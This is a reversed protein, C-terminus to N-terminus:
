RTTSFGGRDVHYGAPRLDLGALKELHANSDRYVELIAASLADDLRIRSSRRLLSALARQRLGARRLNWSGDASKRVNESKRSDLLSADISRDLWDSLLHVIAGTNSGFWEMPAIFVNEPGLVDAIASYTSAYDLLAGFTFREEQPDSIRRVLKEFDTQGPDRRRDSVQVYHSALWHDQRRLLCLLKIRDFGRAVLAAKMGALHGACLAQRSTSRGIAEDSLLVSRQDSRWGPGLLQDLLTDAHHHWITDSRSFISEFLRAGNGRFYTDEPMSSVFLEDLAPFVQRQLFTSGTKPLGIHLYLTRSM